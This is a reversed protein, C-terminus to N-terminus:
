KASAARLLQIVRALDRPPEPGFPSPPPPPVAQQAQAIELATKGDSSIAWPPGGLEVVLEVTAADGARAAMMLPTLGNWMANVNAGRDVLKKLVAEDRTMMLLPYNGPNPDAGALILADVTEVDGRE